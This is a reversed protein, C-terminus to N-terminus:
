CEDTAWSFDFHVGKVVVWIVSRGVGGSQCNDRSAVAEGMSELIQVCIKCCLHHASHQFCAFWLSPEPKELFRFRFM